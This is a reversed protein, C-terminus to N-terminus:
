FPLNGSCYIKHLVLVKFICITNKKKKMLNKVFTTDFKFIWFVLFLLIAKEVARKDYVLDKHSWIKFCGTLMLGYKPFVIDPIQSFVMYDVLYLTRYKHLQYITPLFLANEHLQGFFEFPQWKVM